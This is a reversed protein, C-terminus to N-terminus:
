PQVDTVVIHVIEKSKRGAAPPGACPVRVTSNRNKSKSMWFLEAAGAAAVVGGAFWALGSFGIDKGVGYLIGSLPPAICRAVAGVSAGLGNIRGLYKPDCAEKLLILILPYALIAFFNRLVLVGYIGPYVSGEPLLALYPVLFYVVPHLLTVLQFLRWVGLWEAFVPFIAGQVFLAIVGNVSMIVGVHKITLGLGGRLSAAFASGDTSSTALIDSIPDAVRDDQLYIPLLSDFVMSHYCFLGLATTCLIVKRSFVRESTQSRISPPRASGDSNVNWNEEVQIDVRNFTGYSEGRIDAGETVGTNNLLPTEHAVASAIPNHETIPEDEHRILTEELLFYGVVVSILLLTACILNPLLYPLTPFLPSNATLGAIMPGLITGLSWCFPM